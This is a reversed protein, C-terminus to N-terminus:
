MELFKTGRLKYLYSLNSLLASRCLPRVASPRASSKDTERGSFTVMVDTLGPTVPHAKVAATTAGLHLDQVPDIPMALQIHGHLDDMM